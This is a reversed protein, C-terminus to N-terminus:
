KLNVAPLPLNLIVFSIYDYYSNTKPINKDIIFNVLQYEKFTFKYFKGVAEFEYELRVKNFAELINDINYKRDVLLELSIPEDKNLDDVSITDYSFFRVIVDAYKKQPLVHTYYDEERKAISSLVQQVTYGRINTDRKVKWKTKLNRETDMFIKLDYLAGQNNYLSHLGCVILNDSSSIPQSSTFKGTNHDYDVQYVTNGAKLNFVDRQMKTIHNATPNLHTVTKWSEDSREWKHYRDGELVVSNCFLKKLIDSLVSKGAGSDGCIAITNCKSLIFSYEIDKLNYQIDRNNLYHHLLTESINGHTSILQKINEFISFYQNMAASPGYAFADCLHPDKLNKLKSSDIKSDSPITITNDLEDLFDLNNFSVDPRYRIVLDYDKGTTKENICKLENLKYLKAWHNITNNTVKDNIFLFNSEIIVTVPSLMDSIQKIDKEEEILNFYKDQSNEDKTLHLYVDVKNYKKLLSEKIYEVNITYNRLYGAILLAVKM